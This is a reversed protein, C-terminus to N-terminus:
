LYRALLLTRATSEIPVSQLNGGARPPEWGVDALIVGTFSCQLANLRELNRDRVSRQGHSTWKGDAICERELLGGRQLPYAKDADTSAIPSLIPIPVFAPLAISASGDRLRYAWLVMNRTIGRVREHLGKWESDRGFAEWSPFAEHLPAFLPMQEHLNSGM